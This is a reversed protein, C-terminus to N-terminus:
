RRAAPRRPIPSAGHSIVLSAAAVENLFDNGAEVSDFCAPRLPFAVLLSGVASWLRCQYELEEDENRPSEGQFPIRIVCCGLPSCRLARWSAAYASNPSSQSMGVM